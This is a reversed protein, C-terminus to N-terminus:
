IHVYNAQQISLFLSKFVEEVHIHSIHSINTFLCINEVLFSFLCIISISSVFVVKGKIRYDHKKM